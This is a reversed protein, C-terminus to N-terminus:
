AATAPGTKDTEGPEPPGGRLASYSAFDSKSSIAVAKPTHPTADIVHVPLSHPYNDM